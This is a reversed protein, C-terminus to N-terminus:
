TTPAVRLTMWDSVSDLDDTQFSVQSMINHLSMSSVLALFISQKCVYIKVRINLFHLKSLSHRGHVLGCIGLDAGRIALALKIETKVM